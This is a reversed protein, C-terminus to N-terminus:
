SPDVAHRDELPERHASRPSADMDDHLIWFSGEEFRFANPRWVVAVIGLGLSCLFVTVVIAGSALSMAASEVM